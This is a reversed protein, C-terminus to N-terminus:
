SVADFFELMVCIEQHSLLDGCAMSNDVHSLINSFNWCLGEVTTLCKKGNRQQIRIHVYEKAGTGGLNEADAFPDFATPIQVDLEVM